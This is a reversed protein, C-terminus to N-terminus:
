EKGYIWVNFPYDKIDADSGGVIKGAAATGCIDQNLRSDDGEAAMTTTDPVNEAATTPIDETTTDASEEDDTTTPPPNVTTSIQFTDTMDVANVVCNFGLGPRSMGTGQTKLQKFLIM